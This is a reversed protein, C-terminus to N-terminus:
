VLARNERTGASPVDTEMLSNTNIRQQIAGDEAMKPCNFLPIGNNEVIQWMIWM